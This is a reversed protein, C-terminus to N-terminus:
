NAAATEVLNNGTTIRVRYGGISANNWPSPGIHLFLNGPQAPRGSYRDGLVFVPGGDGVRGVLVGPAAVANGGANAPARLGQMGNPGAMYQGPGQPWLDVQGAATIQLDLHPDVRIGTDLWQGHASGHKAADIFVETEGAGELWRITVLQHPKLMLEGFYEARAKIGQTVVKGIITFKTTRVVDEEKLRLQKAPVRREIEKIASQARQAVEPTPSKAAKHLALYSQPGLSVLERVAAERQQYSSSSLRHLATQIKAEADAEVHVGFEIQRIDKPSVTLKGFATQVEICDQVITMYVTSGNAFRVEADRAVSADKKEAAAKGDTGTQGVAACTLVLGAILPKWANAYM